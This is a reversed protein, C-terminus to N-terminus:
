PNRVITPHITFQGTTVTSINGDADIIEAEHYYTGPKPNSGVGTETDAPNLTIVMVWADTENDLVVGSTLAKKLYVDTGIAKASKGMWWKASQASALDVKAGNADLIPIRITFSDGAWIEVSQDTAPM